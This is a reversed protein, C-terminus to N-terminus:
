VSFVQKPIKLNKNIKRPIEKEKPPINLFFVERGVPGFAWGLLGAWGAAAAKGARTGHVARVGLAPGLRVGGGPAGKGLGPRGERRNLGGGWWRVAVRWGGGGDSGSGGGDGEHRRLGAAGSGM